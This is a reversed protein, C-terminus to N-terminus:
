GMLDGNEPRQSEWIELLHHSKETEMIEQALEECYIYIHTYGILETEQLVM